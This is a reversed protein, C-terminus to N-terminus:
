DDDSKSEELVGEHADHHYQLAVLTAKFVRLMWIALGFIFVPWILMHVWTPPAIKVEVIIAAITTLAGLILIVFVIAGDGPDADSLDFGCTDCTPKIDLLRGYLPGTGCKPCRCKFGAQYPSVSGFGQEPDTNNETNM